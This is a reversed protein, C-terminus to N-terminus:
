FLVGNSDWIFLYCRNQKITENKESINAFSTHTSITKKKVVGARITMKDKALYFSITQYFYCVILKFVNQFHTSVSAIRVRSNRVECDLKM